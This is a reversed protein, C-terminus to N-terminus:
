SRDPRFDPEERGEGLHFGTKDQYGSPARSVFIAVAGGGVVAVASGLALFLDMGDDYRLKPWTVM